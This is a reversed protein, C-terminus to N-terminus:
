PACETILKKMAIDTDDTINGNAFVVKLYSEDDCEGFCVGVVSEVQANFNQLQDHIISGLPINPDGSHTVIGDKTIDITEGFLDGDLCIRLATNSSGCSTCTMEVIRNQM